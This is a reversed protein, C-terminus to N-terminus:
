SALQQVHILVWHWRSLGEEVTAVAETMITSQAKEGTMLASTRRPKAGAYDDRVHKERDYPRSIHITYEHRTLDYPCSNHITDKHRTLDYPRSFSTIDQYRTLNYPHSFSTTDEYRTLDYPCSNHITDKYRTLDYPDYARSFIVFSYFM